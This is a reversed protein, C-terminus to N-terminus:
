CGAAPMTIPAIAEVHTSFCSERTACSPRWRPTGGPRSTSGSPHDHVDRLRRLGRTTVFMKGSLVGGDRGDGLRAGRLRPRFFHGSGNITGGPLSSEDGPSDWSGLFRGRVAHRGGLRLMVPERSKIRGLEKGLEKEAFFSSSQFYGRCAHTDRYRGPSNEDEQIGPRPM